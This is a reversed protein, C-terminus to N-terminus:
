SRRPGTSASWRSCSRAWRLASRSWAHFLRGHCPRAAEGRRRREDLDREGGVARRRGRWAPLDSRVVCRPRATLTYAVTLASGAVVSALIFPVAGFRAALRPFTRPPPWCASRGLRRVRHRHHSQRRGAAGPGAAGAAHASAPRCASRRAPPSSRCCRVGPVQPARSALRRCASAGRRPVLAARRGSARGQARSRAAAEQQRRWMDAYLGNSRWCSPM